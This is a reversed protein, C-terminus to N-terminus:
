DDMICGFIDTNSLSGNVEQSKARIVRQYTNYLQGVTIRSEQLWNIFVACEDATDSSLPYYILQKRAQSAALLLQIFKVHINSGNFAYSWQGSAVSINGAIISMASYAKCLDRDFETICQSQGSTKQSADMFVIVNQRMTEAQDLSHGLKTEDNYKGTCKINTGIGSHSTLKESGLVAVVENHSLLPCILAAILCEPRTLLILEEQSITHKFLEGGLYNHASTLHVPATDEDYFGRGLDGAIIPASSRAWDPVATAARMVIVRSSIFQNLASDSGGIEHIRLFYHLIFGLASVNQCSFINTLTFEPFQEIDRAVYDYRFLGFFACSLITAIQPRTFVVNHTSATNSLTPIKIDRFLKPGEVVFKQLTPLIHLVGDLPIAGPTDFYATFCASVQNPKIAGCSVIRNDLEVISTIKASIKSKRDGWSKIEWPWIIYQDTM